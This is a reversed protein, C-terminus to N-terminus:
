KLIKFYNRNIQEGVYYDHHTKVYNKHGMKEENAVEVASKNPNVTGAANESKETKKGFTTNQYNGPVPPIFMASKGSPRNQMNLSYRYNKEQDALKADQFSTTLPPNMLHKAATSAISKVGHTIPSPNTRGYAFNIFFSENSSKNYIIKKIDAVNVLDEEKRWYHRITGVEPRGADTNTFKAIQPSTRPVQELQPNVCDKATHTQTYIKGASKTEQSM